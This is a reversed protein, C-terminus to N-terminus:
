GGRGLPTLRHHVTGDMDVYLMADEFPIEYLPRVPTTSERCPRWVARPLGFEIGTMEARARDLAERVSLLPSSAPQSFRTLGLFAGTVADVRVMLETGRSTNWPVLYYGDGAEDLREVLLPQGPCGDRAAEVLGPLAQAQLALEAAGIAAQEGIWM